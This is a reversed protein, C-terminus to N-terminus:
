EKATLKNIEGQTVAAYVRLLVFGAWHIKHRFCIAAAKYFLNQWKGASLSLKGVNHLIDMNKSLYGAIENELLKRERGKLYREIKCIEFFLLSIIHVAADQYEREKLADFFLFRNAPHATNFVKTVSSTNRRYYIVPLSSVLVNDICSLYELHFLTDESLRLEERFRIENARIVDNLFLKAWCSTLSLPKIEYFAPLLRNNIPDLVMKQVSDATVSQHLVKDHGPTDDDYAAIVAQIDPSVMAMLHELCSELLYDDSDLFMIWKGSAKQLGLNRASSVGHNETSILIVRPDSEWFRCKKLSEDTSGDDILILEIDQFSQTLVSEICQDIYLQANYVPVIISIM